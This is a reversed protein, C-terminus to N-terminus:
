PSIGPGRFRSIEQMIRRVDQKRKIERQQVQFTIGENM